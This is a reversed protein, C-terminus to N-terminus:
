DHCIVKKYHNHLQEAITHPAHYEELYKIGNQTYKLKLQNNENLSIAADAFEQATNAVFLHENHTLHLGKSAMPTAVIAKQQSLAELIKIRIGSGTFLPVLMISGNQYFNEIHEIEGHFNVNSFSKWFNIDKENANKGGIHLKADANQALMLPWVKTILWNLADINPFWDLAGFFLYNNPKQETKPPPIKISTPLSIIIRNRTKQQFYEKENDSICIISDAFSLARIEYKRLKKSLFHFYIKKFVNQENEARSKWIDAEINHTRVIKKVGSLHPLLWAMYLSEIHVIDPKFDSILNRIIPIINKKVFRHAIYPTRSFLDFFILYIWVIKTQHKVISYSFNKHQFNIGNINQQKDTQLCILHIKTNKALCAMTMDWIAVSEGDSTPFPIKKCIQIIRV